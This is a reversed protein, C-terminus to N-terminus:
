RARRCTLRWAVRVLMAVIGPALFPVTAMAVIIALSWNSSALFRACRAASAGNRNSVCAFPACPFAVDCAAEIHRSMM